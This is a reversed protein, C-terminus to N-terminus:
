SAGAIRPSAPGGLVFGIVRGRSNTAVLMTAAPNVLEQGLVNGELVRDMARLHGLPVHGRYAAWHGLM